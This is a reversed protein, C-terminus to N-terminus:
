QPPAALRVSVREPDVAVLAIGDPLEVSVSLMAVGSALHEVRVYPVVSPSELKLIGARPGSVEVSATEPSLEYARSERSRVDIRLGVFKREATIQAVKIDVTVASRKLVQTHQWPTRLAAERAMDQKVDRLDVPESEVNKIGKVETEPGTIEVEAPEVQFRVLQYEESVSGIRPVVVPVVKTVRRDLVLDIKRPEIGIVEIGPPLGLTEAKLPAEYHNEVAPPLAVKFAPAAATVQAVMFTPGRVTVQAQRLSPLLVMRGAPLNTVEVSATFAVQATNTQNRVFVFLLLAILLSFLKLGLNRM